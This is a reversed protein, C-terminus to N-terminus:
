DMLASYKYRPLTARVWIYIFVVSTAKLRLWFSGPLWNLFFLNAAAVKTKKCRNHQLQDLSIHEVVATSIRQM